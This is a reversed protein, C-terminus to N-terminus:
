RTSRKQVIRAIEEPTAKRSLREQASVKKGDATEGSFGRPKQRRRRRGAVAKMSLRIRKNNNDIGLVRVKVVDGVKVVENPDRVFGRSLQSVHVLGDQHVGIDVFAGFNTVNTVVGEVVMNLKLDEVRSLGENYQFRKFEKRPDEHPHELQRRIAALMLRGVSDSVYGPWDIKEIAEENGILEDVSCGADTAIKEVLEYCEPHIGTKDLPHPSDPVVLFGVAQLYAQEDVNRVTKLDDRAAFAKRARRHEVISRAAVSSIGPVYRLLSQSASSLDVRIASVCSMVVRVLARKLLAQNVDHQYQGVGIWKPEVKVLERLPNQFRRVLSVAGRVSPDLGPFEDHGVKSSAYVNVGADNIVVREAKHDPLHTKLFKRIFEDAHRSASGSGVVITDIGHKVFLEKLRQTTREVDSIPQAEDVPKEAEGAPTQPEEAPAGGEAAQQTVDEATQPAETQAEGTEAEGTEADLQELPVPTEAAEEVTESAPTPTEADPVADDPQQQVDDRDAVPQEPMEAPQEGEPPAAEAQPAAEAAPTEPSAAPARRPRVTRNRTFITAYDLFMGDADVVAVKFAGRNGPGIGICKRGSCPSMMLLNRLNAAFVRIAHKDARRKLLSKQESQLAPALMQKFAEEIADKMFPAALSNEDKLFRKQLLRIAQEPGIEITSRLYREKEGRRITLVRHSPVDAAPQWFDCYAEFRDRLHRSQVRQSSRQKDASRDETRRCVLVGEEVFLKRMEARVAGDEAIWEAIIQVAGRLATEADPVDKGADVYPATLEDISGAEIRRGGALELIMKALPELGKDRAEAARSRRKPRFPLFLDDLEAKEFCEAFKARLEDTLQGQEELTKVYAAKRSQLDLLEECRDVVACIEDETMGGTHDKRYHAIFPIAAGAEHLLLVNAVHAVEARADAESYQEDRILGREEVIRQLVDQDM